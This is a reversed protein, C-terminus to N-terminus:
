VEDRKGRLLTVEASVSRRGILNTAHALVLGMVLVSWGFWLTFSGGRASPACTGLLLAVGVVVMGTAVLTSRGRTAVIKSAEANKTAAAIGRVHVALTVLVVTALGIAILWRPHPVINTTLAGFVFGAALVVLPFLLERNFM